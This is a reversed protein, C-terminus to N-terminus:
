ALTFRYIGHADVHRKLTGGLWLAHLHAISEGLAFTTQHLDLKRKFLVMLLHSLRQQALTKM